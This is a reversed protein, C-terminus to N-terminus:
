VDIEFSSAGDGIYPIGYQGILQVQPLERIVRRTREYKFEHYVGTVANRMEIEYQWM